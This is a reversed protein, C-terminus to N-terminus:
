ESLGAAELAEERNAFFEVRIVKGERITWVQAYSSWELEVGSTRGRMRQSLICLVQDGADIFEEYQFDVTEWAAFWTRWFTRVGEHGHYVPEFDSWQAARSDGSWQAGVSGTHWEIAPDYAAFVSAFDGRQHADVIRRVVEVNEKSM